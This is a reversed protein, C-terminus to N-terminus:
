RWLTNPSSHNLSTGKRQIVQLLHAAKNVGDRAFALLLLRVGEEHLPRQNPHPELMSLPIDFVGARCEEKRAFFDDISTDAMLTSHHTTLPSHHAFLHTGLQNASPRSNQHRCLNELRSEM